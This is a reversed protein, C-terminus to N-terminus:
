RISIEPSRLLFAPFAQLAFGCFLSEKRARERVAVDRSVFPLAARIDGVLRLSTRQEDDLAETARGISGLGRRQGHRTFWFGLRRGFGLGDRFVIEEFRPERDETVPRGDCNPDAIPDRYGGGAFANPAVECRQTAVSWTATPRCDNCAQEECQALNVGMEM